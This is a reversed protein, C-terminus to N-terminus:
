WQTVSGRTYMCPVPNICLICPGKRPTFAHRAQRKCFGVYTLYVPVDCCEMFADCGENAKPKPLPPHIEKSRVVKGALTECHPKMVLHTTQGRRIRDYKICRLGLKTRSCVASSTPSYVGQGSGDQRGLTPLVTRPSTIARIEEGVIKWSSM